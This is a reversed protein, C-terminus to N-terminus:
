INCDNILRVNFIWYTKVLLITMIQEITLLELRNNGTEVIQSFKLFQSQNDIGNASNMIFLLCTNILNSWHYWSLLLQVLEWHLIVWSYLTFYSLILINILIYFVLYSFIFVIMGNWEGVNGERDWEDKGRIDYMDKLGIKFLSVNLLKKRFKIKFHDLIMLM